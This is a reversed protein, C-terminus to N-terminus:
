GIADVLVKVPVRPQGYGSALAEAFRKGVLGDWLIFEQLWRRSETPKSATAIGSGIDPAPL